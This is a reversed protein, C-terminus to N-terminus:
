RNKQRQKARRETKSKRKHRPQILSAVPTEEQILSEVPTEKNTHQNTNTYEKNNNTFLSSIVDKNRVAAVGLAAVTAAAPIYIHQYKSLHKTLRSDNMRNKADESIEDVTRGGFKRVSRRHHTQRSTKHKRTRRTTM